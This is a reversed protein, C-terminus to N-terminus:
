IKSRDYLIEIYHSYNTLDRCADLLDDERPAVGAMLAKAMNNLRMQCEMASIVAGPWGFAAVNALVDEDTGYRRGRDLRIPQLFKLDRQEIDRELDAATYQKM